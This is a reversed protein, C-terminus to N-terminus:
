EDIDTTDSGIPLPEPYPETKGLYINWFYSYNYDKGYISQWPYWTTDVVVENTTYLKHYLTDNSYKHWAMTISYSNKKDLLPVTKNEVLTTDYNKKIHVQKVFYKKYTTLYSLKTKAEKVGNLYSRSYHFKIISDPYVFIYDTEISRYEHLKAVSFGRYRLGGLQKVFGIKEANQLNYWNTYLISVYLTDASKWLAVCPYQLSDKHLQNIGQLTFIDLDQYYSVSDTKKTTCAVLFILVLILKNKM